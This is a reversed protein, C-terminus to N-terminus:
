TGDLARKTLRYHYHIFVCKFLADLKYQYSSSFYIIKGLIVITKEHKRM